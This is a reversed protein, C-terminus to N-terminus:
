ATDQFPILYMRILTNLQFRFFYKTDASCPEEELPVSNAKVLWWVLRCSKLSKSSSCFIFKIQLDMFADVQPFMVELVKWRKARSLVFANKGPTGRFISPLLTLDTQKWNIKVGLTFSASFIFFDTNSIITQIRFDDFSNHCIEIM